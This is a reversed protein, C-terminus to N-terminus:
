PLSALSATGPAVAPARWTRSWDGNARWRVCRRCGDVQYVVLDAELTAEFGLETMDQIFAEVGTQM